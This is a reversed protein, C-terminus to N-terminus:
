AAESAPHNPIFLRFTTGMGIQSECVLRGEVRELFMRVLFLGLGTGRGQEKTTFFPEGAKEKVEPSMGLGDDKVCVTLGEPNQSIGLSVRQDPRSAELGNKLMVALSQLLATKPILIPHDSHHIDFDIRHWLDAKLYERLLLPIQHVNIRVPPDGLGRTANTALQQLISKCREVESRILRTDQRLLHTDSHEDAAIELERCAVAITGLPTALEHAMGTALTALSAFREHREQLIRANALDVERRALAASIQGVFFAICAGVLVLGVFMGGLQFDEGRGTVNGGSGFILAHPSLFLAAYCASCVLVGMASGIQPLLIAAMAIHLLYFICFPNQVGGTWYLMVTLVATDLALLFPVLVKESFPLNERFLDLPINTGLTVLFCGALVAVPLDVHFFGAAIVCTAIQGTVAVWRLRILWRLGLYPKETASLLHSKLTTM